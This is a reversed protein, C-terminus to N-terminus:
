ITKTRINLDKIWKQTLKQMYDPLLGIENKGLKGTKGRSNTLFVRKGWSSTNAGKNFILTQIHSLKNRPERNHKMPTHIQRLPLTKILIAKYSTRFDPFMTLMEVKSKKKRTTQSKLTEQSEM